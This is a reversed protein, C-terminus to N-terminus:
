ADRACSFAITRVERHRPGRLVPGLTNTRRPFTALWAGRRSGLGARPSRLPPPDPSARFTRQDTPKGRDRGHYTVACTDGGADGSPASAAAKHIHLYGAPKRGRSNVSAGAHTHPGPGMESDISVPESRRLTCAGPSRARAHTARGGPSASDCRSGSPRPRCRKGRLM